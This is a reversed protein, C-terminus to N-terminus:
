LSHRACWAGLLSLDVTALPTPVELDDWDASVIKHLIKNVANTTDVVLARLEGNEDKFLKCTKEAEELASEALGKRPAPLLAAKGDETGLALANAPQISMGSPFIAIKLQSDTLKSWRERMAKIDKDRKKLEAVHTARLAQLSSRTRQLDAMMQKHEGEAQQQARNAITLERVLDVAEMALDHMTRLREHDYSRAQSTSATSSSATHLYGERDHPIKGQCPDRKLYCSYPNIQRHAFEYQEAQFKLFEESNM